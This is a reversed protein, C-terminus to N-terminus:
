EGGAVGSSVDLELVGVVVEGKVTINGASSEISEDTIIRVFTHSFSAFGMTRINSHLSKWCDCANEAWTSGM